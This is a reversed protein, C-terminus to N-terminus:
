DMNSDISIKTIRYYSLSVFFALSAIGWMISEYFLLSGTNILKSAESFGGPFFFDSIIALPKSFSVFNSVVGNILSAELFIWIALVFINFFGKLITSLFMSISIFLLGEVLYLLYILSSTGINLNVEGGYSYLGVISPIVAFLITGIILNIFSFLYKSTLYEEKTVPRSLVTRLYFTRVDNSVIGGTFLLVFVPVFFSLPAVIITDLNLQMNLTPLDFVKPLLSFGVVVIFFAGFIIARKLTWFKKLEFYTLTIINEM